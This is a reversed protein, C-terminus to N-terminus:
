EADRLQQAVERLETKSNFLEQSLHKTMRLEGYVTNEVPELPKSLNENTECTTEFM